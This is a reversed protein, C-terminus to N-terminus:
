AKRKRKLESIPRTTAIRSSFGLDTEIRTAAIKVSESMRELTARQTQDIPAAVGIAALVRGTDGRIARSVAMVGPRWEGTTISFGTSRIKELHERLEEPSRVTKETHRVITQAVQEVIEAPQYALMAKGSASAYSPSRDGVNVYARVAHIGDVKDLYLADLKDLVALHVTEETTTALWALHPAAIVRMDMREHVRSGMEWMRLTAQYHRTVPNHNVYGCAVFTHLLRHANSKTMDCIEAIDGLSMPQSALALAELVKIGKVVTTQM